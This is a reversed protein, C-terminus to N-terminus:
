MMSRQVPCTSPRAPAKAAPFASVPFPLMRDDNFRPRATRLVQQFVIQDPRDATRFRDERMHRRVRLLLHDNHGIPQCFLNRKWGLPHGADQGFHLRNLHTDAIWIVVPLLDLVDARPM